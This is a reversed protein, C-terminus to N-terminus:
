SYTAFDYLMKLRDTGYESKIAVCTGFIKSGVTTYFSHKCNKGNTRETGEKV